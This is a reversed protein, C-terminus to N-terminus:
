FIQFLIRQQCMTKRYDSNSEFIIRNKKREINKVPFSPQLQGSTYSSPHVAKKWHQELKVPFSQKMALFNRGISAYISVKTACQQNLDSFLFHWTILFKPWFHIKKKEHFINSRFHYKMSAPYSFLQIKVPHKNGFNQFDFLGPQKTALYIRFLIRQQFM